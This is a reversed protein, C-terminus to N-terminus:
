DRELHRFNVPNAAASSNNNRGSVTAASPSGHRGYSYARPNFNIVEDDSSSETEYDDALDNDDDEDYNDEDDKDEDDEDSSDLVMINTQDGRELKLNEYAECIVEEAIAQSLDLEDLQKHKNKCLKEFSQVAKMTYDHQEFRTKSKGKKLWKIIYGSCIEAKTQVGFQNMLASLNRNYVSKRECAEKIYAEM